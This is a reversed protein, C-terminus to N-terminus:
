DERLRELENELAEIYALVMPDVQSLDPREVNM